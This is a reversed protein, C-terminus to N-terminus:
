IFTAANPQNGLEGQIPYVLRSVDFYNTGGTCCSISIPPCSVLIPNPSARRASDYQDTQGGIHRKSNLEEGGREKILCAIYVSDQSLQKVSWETIRQRRDLEFGLM